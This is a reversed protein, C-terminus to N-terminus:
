EDDSSDIQELLYDIYEANEVIAGEDNSQLNLSIGVEGESPKPTTDVPDEPTSIKLKVPADVDTSSPNIEAPKTEVSADSSADNNNNNGGSIFNKVGNVINSGIAKLGDIFGEDIDALAEDLAEPTDINIPESVDAAEASYTVNPNSKSTVSTNPKTTAGTSGTSGNNSAPTPKAAVTVTSGTDVAGEGGEKGPTTTQLVNNVAIQKAEASGEFKEVDNPAAEALRKVELVYEPCLNKFRNTSYLM